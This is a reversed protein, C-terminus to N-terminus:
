SANPTKPLTFFFTAGKGPEAEAWLRGGHRKIVRSSTALGIGTGPFESAAHLRQFPNFLKDVYAMDFGAGNDRVFFEPQGAADLTHGVTIETVATHSSFKWANGLLNEMVVRLLRDDGHAKLGPEINVVAKRDPDRSQYEDAIGRALASLDVVKNSLPARSVQALSLLDEILQGMQAVGAQIRSLYHTVKDGAESGLQKALLRSFGDVTNLPSRLDHSVSYSFAELEHNSLRLAAEIAKIETIDADIGVWFAVEGQEDLVPSARYSMTHSSGDLALVRRIGMYQSQAAKAAEWKAKVDPLDEPHIVSFWQTGTWDELKGGVLDFWARNFYTAAGNPNITWVVQPAQEALARFLAQQRELALTREAVKQELGTNLQSVEELLRANEIAISALQALELAVYEDQQTFEGEYKDSLQLLGINRGDRGTLPVALWGRMAPHKGAYSGFGRWRPHAELEAQTMRMSRNNQCVMAYIGTGDPPEFQDRYRAYKDSFSLANVAQKWDGGLTLSVSSQHAGIVGRAQEAVERMTGELTQHWTIAQAADAARQLTFLHEQVDREAKLQATIDMAVVFRAPVGGYQIPRSVAHVSFISGDKRRHRWTGKREPSEEGLQRELRAHESEPRIDFLTMARFEAASYGYSDVAAKNVNLFRRTADAFVWMPVPAMEFLAAYRQESDVLAQEARKRQTIDREVAVWHTYWGRADAIPVIDMDVWFEEGSKTYNILEARVPQWKELAARIRDLEARQTRPGQLLRPTRGLVEERTYGTRREFANNVFVIRPGPADIPQAETILVLDNLRSVCSELLRLHEQAEHQETVDQLVGVLSVIKGDRQLVRGQTRVWIRRGTATVLPLELDWPTGSQFAAEAAARIVPQADPAYFRIAEGVSLSITPALEHIRYVEESWYPTMTEVQIEWGGVKALEGTRNLLETSRVVVLEARKRDTIEQIVGSRLPGPGPQGDQRGHSRGVLHVWRTEGAATIVRFEADLPLGGTVAADRRVRFEERDAPHILELLAERSSAVVAKDVGLVDYVEDSWWTENTRLDLQWYGIRGLRQADQLKGQIAESNALEAELAGRHKQLSEAMRNFGASIRYFEGGDDSAGLPIRVDLHGDQIKRTADLIKRTPVVIARGGILWALLAGLLALLTLVALELGLQRRSDGVVLNHDLSVSVFFAEGPNVSTPLYAWLRRQGTGDPGDATGARMTKVAEKLVPSRPKQGIGVPLAPKGALLVGNRDHIGLAAGPPLQIEVASKAMEGLDVSAYAVVIVRGDSDLLPLAFSISPKGSARGVIYEGAVFARRAMAERFYARDGLYGLPTNPLGNCLSQGNAAVIGLNAYLPFLRNLESLYNNCRASGGGNADRLDPAHIIATLVQRATEALQQQNSAALSGAFQLDTMARGVAADANYVAKYISLGFLPVIAALVLMVLRTRLTIPVKM